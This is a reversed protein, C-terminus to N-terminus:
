QRVFPIKKAAAERVIAAAAKLDGKMHAVRYRYGFTSAQVPNFLHSVEYMMRNFEGNEVARKAAAAADADVHRLVAWTAPGIDNKYSAIRRKYIRALEVM